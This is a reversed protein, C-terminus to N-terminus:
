KKTSKKESEGDSKEVSKEVSETIMKDKPPKNLQKEIVEVSKGLAKIDDKSLDVIEGTEYIVGHIFLKVLTKVKM